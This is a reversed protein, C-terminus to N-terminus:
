CWRCRCPGMGCQACCDLGSGGPVHVDIILTKAPEDALLAPLGSAAACGCVRVDHARLLSCRPWACRRRM